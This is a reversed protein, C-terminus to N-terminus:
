DAPANRRRRGVPARLLEFWAGAMSAVLALLILGRVRDLQARDDESGWAAVARQITRARRLLAPVGVATWARRRLVLAARQHEDLLIRGMARGRVFHHRVLRAPTTCRNHHILEVERARWAQHGRGWLELNVVTDEGARMDEPFGGVELVLHRLYSCAAPPERLPGSPRGPLSAPHDLYYAAWGAPTDTGNYVSATVMPHGEEHARARAALAGPRLEIHSGPFTVVEGRAVALGANRAEGPLAPRPLEVLTVAPFRERVIAATRDTGSTVVIVEFPAPCEQAVVSRVAREIRTEDNRSIVVASLAPADPDLLELDVPRGRDLPDALVPLGPPRAPWTRAPGPPARLPEYDDQFAREPDAALYKAYRAGRRHEDLGGLHQIRVTTRQWHTRPIATPVPVFHLREPSLELGPRWPFLRYVWLEAADYHDLDGQMRHIRFGYAADRDAERALFERLAAADDAPIREDADLFLVWDPDVEAAADLLAARNARDDWGEYGPRRPNRLVRHVFPSAELVAATDDTSGDDLAVAVDAVGAASELWGPLDAAANRAPVLAVVRPEVTAGSTPAAEAGFVDLVPLGAPRATWPVTEAAARDLGAFDVRYRGEPDAARYKRLRRDVQQPTAAGLHQIRLTTPVWAGRPIDTPVPDFHLDEGDLRQGPRPAFLRYVLHPEPDHRDEGWFRYCRLGYACGALADGALFGRLAAADDAAIREDADLFLVWDPALETATALLENRNELDNWGAYDERRPHRLLTQVLPHRDLIAATADTSGDDLAVVADAFREISALAGPLDDEANRAPLLCALTPM